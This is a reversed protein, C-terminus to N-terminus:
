PSCRRSRKPGRSWRHVHPLTRVRDHRLNGGLGQAHGIVHDAHNMGVRVDRGIVLHRIRAPRGEVHSGRTLMAATSALFWIRSSAESMISAAASSM